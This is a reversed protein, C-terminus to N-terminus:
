VGVKYFRPLFPSKDVARGIKSEIFPRTPKRVSFQQAPAAHATLLGGAQVHQAAPRRVKPQAHHDAIM